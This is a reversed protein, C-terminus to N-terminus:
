SIQHCRSSASKPTCPPHTSLLSCIISLIDCSLHRAMPPLGSWVRHFPSPSTRRSQVEGTSIRQQFHGYFRQLLNRFSRAARVSPTSPPEDELLDEFSVRGRAPRHLSHISHISHIRNIKVGVIEEPLNVCTQLKADMRSMKLQWMCRQARKLTKFHKLTIILIMLHRIASIRGVSSYMGRDSRPSHM